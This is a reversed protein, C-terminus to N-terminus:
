ADDGFYERDVMRLYKESERCAHCRKDQGHVRHKPVLNEDHTVWHGVELEFPRKRIEYKGPRPDTM